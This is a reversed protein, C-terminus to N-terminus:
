GKKSLKKSVKQLESGKHQGPGVQLQLPLSGGQTPVVKGGMPSRFIKKTLFYQAFFQSIWFSINQLFILFGFLFKTCLISFDLSFYQAFFQSIWVFIKDKPFGCFYKRQCVQSKTGVSKVGGVGRSTLVGVVFNKQHKNQM